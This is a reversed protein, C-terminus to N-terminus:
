LVNLSNFSSIQKYTIVQFFFSSSLDMKMSMPSYFIASVVCHESRFDVMIYIGFRSAILDQCSSMVFLLHHHYTLRIVNSVTINKSCMQKLLKVLPFM